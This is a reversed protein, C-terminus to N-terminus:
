IAEKHLEQSQPCRLILEGTLTRGLLDVLLQVMKSSTVVTLWKTRCHFVSGVGFLPM